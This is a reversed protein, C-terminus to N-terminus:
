RAGRGAEIEFNRLYSEYLRVPEVGDPLERVVSQFLRDEDTVIFAISAEPHDAMAALFKDVQDLDALVGYADAVDWGSSIDDIRRGRSGARLWLLPAVREFERNNAVRLPAEYTLTSFEVNEEFGDAMPFEDTFKYDGKIVEGNPTNGTIAAELRPKTIFDCIGYGEWEPDGARLGRNRLATQEAAGVENNTVLISRRRGGDQRNLRMLAHGSTGSGAFFDVVTANPKMRVFFRMADEVSYLSKPFPFQRGPLFTGLLRSGYQTSDHAAVIWPPGPIALNVIEDSSGLELSGDEKRGLVPYDGRLIKEYEGGKIYYVVYGKESSGGLRVRGQEV